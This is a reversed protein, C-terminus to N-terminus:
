DRRSRATPKTTTTTCAVSVIAISVIYVECDAEYDYYHVDGWSAAQASDAGGKGAGDWRKVYPSTSVLGNSPSSDVFPRADPDAAAIAPRMIDLYLRAYDALYLDRNAKSENYRTRTLALSLTLSLTPILTLTPTLVRKVLHACVRKRQLRGM